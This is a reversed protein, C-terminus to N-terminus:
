NQKPFYSTANSEGSQVNDLRKKFEESLDLQDRRAYIEKLAILTNVDNPDMSEAKQFYPLANEFEAQVKVLFEDFKKLGEKSYDQSLTELEQSMIAAKNFYLAGISYVPSAFSPDMSIAKNYFEIAKNFYETSKEEQGEEKALQSYLQEYVSGTVVYLSVNEPEAAIGAELKGLLADLQNTKLSHNIDAFLLNADDPFLARGEEIYRYAADIDKEAEIKYLSEWIVPREYKAEYLPMFFNKAVASMGANLAALATIYEQNLKDDELLLLSLGGREEIEKHAQLVRVFNEYANSYDGNEYAFIGLNSMNEQVSKMSIMISNIQSKKDAMKIAKIYAANAIVGPNQVQPFDEPLETQNLFSNKYATAVANYIDGKLEWASPDTEAETYKVAEEVAAIAMALDPYNVSQDLEFSKLGKKASASSKKYDQAGLISLSCISIIILILNKM